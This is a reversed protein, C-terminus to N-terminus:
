EGGVAAVGERGAQPGHAHANLADAVTQAQLWRAAVDADSEFDEHRYLVDDETYSDPVMGMQPIANGRVVWVQLAGPDDSALAAAVDEYTEGCVDCLVAVWPGALAPDVATVSGAEPGHPQLDPNYGAGGPEVVTHDSGLSSLYIDLFHDVRGDRKAQEYRARDVEITAEGEVRITLTITDSM